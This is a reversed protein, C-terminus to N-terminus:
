EYNENGGFAPNTIYAFPQIVSVATEQLANPEKM